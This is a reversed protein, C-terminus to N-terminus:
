GGRHGPPGTSRGPCWGAAAQRVEPRERQPRGPRAPDFLRTSSTTPSRSGSRACTAASTTRPRRGAPHAPTSCARTSGGTPPRVPSPGSRRRPSPPPSHVPVDDGVRPMAAEPLPAPAAPAPRQGGAGRCAGSAPTPPRRRVPPTAQGPSGGGGASAAAGPSGRRRSSAAAAGVAAGAAAAAVAGAATWGPRPCRSRPRARAAAPPVPGGAAAHRGARPGGGPTM